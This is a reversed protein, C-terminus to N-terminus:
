AIPTASRSRRATARPARTSASPPSTPPPTRGLVQAPIPDGNEGFRVTASSADGVVHANTVVTGRRDVLFGTGSRSGAQVSVVGSSVTAYVSGATTRPTAGQPAAPLRVARADPSDDGGGLSAVGVGAAVLM